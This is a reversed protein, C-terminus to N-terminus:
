PGDIEEGDRGDVEGRQINEKHKIVTSTLDHVERHCSMRVHLPDDLLQTFRHGKAQLGLIKEPVIVADVAVSYSRKQVATAYLFNPGGISTRPLIREDLSEDAGQPSLHEIVHDHEALTVKFPQQSLEDFLKIVHCSGVLAQVTVCRNRM